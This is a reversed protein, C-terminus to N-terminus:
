SAPFRILGHKEFRDSDQKVLEKGAPRADLLAQVLGECKGELTLYETAWVLWVDHAGAQKMLRQAFAQPDADRNRKEYDVWNVLSAPGGDPFRMETPALGTEVLKRHVSPGLQDPCYAVVDGVAVDGIIAAAVEGAQTRSTVMNRVGGSIGLAAVVGLVAFRRRSSAVATIGRAAILVFLGFVAALYRAEFASGLAIGAVIALGVTLAFVSAEPRIGPRTRLDIEIRHADIARGFLALGALAVLVVGLVRSDTADGGAFATVTAIAANAADSPGLPTAWPTGTHTLQYLFSSMWPLFLLGGAALACVVRLPRQAPNRQASGKWISVLLSLAVVGLLYFAWYHTLLLVGTVLSLAALRGFSPKDMARRMALYGALVLCIVFSYMRAETAYRIAFPSTALLVLATVGVERDGVRLACRWALPIAALAFLGSLSRVAFDSTGVLGTWFHLLLYYAPPAGDQRLADLLDSVPLRAIEVTLAEDLWLDSTALFRLAVGVLVILGCAGVGWDIRRDQRKSQPTSPTM